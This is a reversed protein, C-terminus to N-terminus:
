LHLGLQYITVINPFRTPYKWETCLYLTSHAPTQDKTFM